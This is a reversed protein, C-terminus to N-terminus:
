GPRGQPVCKEIRVRSLAAYIASRDVTCVGSESVNALAAATALRIADIRSCGQALGAILGGVMADGSGVPNEVRVPDGGVWVVGEGYAVFAGRAGMSIMVIDIGQAVLDLAVYAPDMGNPQCTVLEALEDENPKIATPRSALCERLVSGTVDLIVRRGSARLREVLASVDSATIGPPLSGSIAVWEGTESLNDVRILLESWASRSVEPGPENIETPREAGHSVALCTRTEGDVRVFDPKIGLTRLDREILDGTLGAIFGTATTDCGLTKTIRAVNLGKGGAQKTIREVRNVRGHKLGKLVYTKDLAPNPTITLIHPM